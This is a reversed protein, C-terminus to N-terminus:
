SPGEEPPAPGDRALVIFGAAVVLLGLLTGTRLLESDHGRAVVALACAEGVLAFLLFMRMALAEFGTHRRRLRFLRGDVAIVLLFVPVVQAVVAYFEATVHLRRTGVGIAVVCLLFTAAMALPSDDFARVAAAIRRRM